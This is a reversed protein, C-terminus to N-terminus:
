LNAYDRMFGALWGRAPAYRIVTRTRGRRRVRRHQREAPVIVAAPPGLGYRLCDRWTAELDFIVGPDNPIGPDWADALLLQM